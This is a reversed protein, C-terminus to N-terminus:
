ADEGGWSFYRLALAGFLAGFGLLAACPVLASSAGATGSILRGAGDSLYRLPLALSLYQMWRPSLGIPYFTGSVFAMPLIVCNAIAAVGESTKAFISILLGIGFFAVVGCLLVPVAAAAGGSLRLGFPPLTAVGIFLVAQVLAIGVAVLLRSLLLTPLPTPTMRILRLVDSSRWHMLTYAVGFMASNAVGWAMVGPGSYDIFRGGASDQHGFVLGLIVLFFLPFVFTFFLTTKDRFYSRTIALSIASLRM